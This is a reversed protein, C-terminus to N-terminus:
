HIIPCYIRIAISLPIVHVLCPALPETYFLVTSSFSSHQRLGRTLLSLNSLGLLRTLVIGDLFCLSTSIVAWVRPFARLLLRALTEYRTAVTAEESYTSRTIGSQALQIDIEITCPAGLRHCRCIYVDVPPLMRLDVDSFASFPAAVLRDTNQNFARFSKTMFIM